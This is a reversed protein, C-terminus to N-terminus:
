IPPWASLRGYADDWRTLPNQARRSTLTATLNQCLPQDAGPRSCALMVNSLIMTDAYAFCADAHAGMGTLICGQDAIADIYIGHPLGLSANSLVMDLVIQNYYNTLQGEDKLTPPCWNTMGPIDHAKACAAAAQQDHLFHILAQNYIQIDTPFGAALSQLYFRNALKDAAKREIAKHFIDLLTYVRSGNNVDGEGLPNDLNVHSDLARTSNGTFEAWDAAYVVLRQNKSLLTQFSTANPSAITSDMLLGHFLDEFAKWFAQKVQPTAGPYQKIGKDDANGHRSLWLVV